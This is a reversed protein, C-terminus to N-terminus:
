GRVWARRALRAPRSRGARVVNTRWAMASRKPSRATTWGTMVVSSNNRIMMRAVWKWRWSPHRSHIPAAAITAPRAPKKAM